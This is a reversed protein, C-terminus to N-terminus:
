AIAVGFKRQHFGNQLSAGGVGAARLPQGLVHQLALMHQRHRSGVTFGGGGRHQCPHQLLSSQLRAKQHTAHWEVEADRRPETTSLIEDYFCVFVVRCKEVLAAFEHVVARAGRDQVVQLKIVGVDKIVQGGDLTLEVVQHAGHGARAAHDDVPQFFAQGAHQRM